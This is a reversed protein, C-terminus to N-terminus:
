DMEYLERIRNRYFDDDATFKYFNGNLSYATSKNPALSDISILDLFNSTCEYKLDDFAWVRIFIHVLDDMRGAPLILNGPEFTDPWEKYHIYHTEMMNGMAVADDVEKFGVIATRVDDNLRLTFANNKNSHLTYYKRSTQATPLRHLPTVPPAITAM